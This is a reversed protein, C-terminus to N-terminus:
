RDKSREIYLDITWQDMWGDMWGDMRGDMWGVMNIQRDTQGNSQM